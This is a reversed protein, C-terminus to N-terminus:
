MCYFVTVSGDKRYFVAHDVFTRIVDNKMEDPADSELFKIGSDVSEKWKRFMEPDIPADAETYRKLSTELLSIQSQLLKKNEAYEELTDIGAQYAQSARALKNKARAIDSRIKQVDEDNRVRSRPRLVTADFAGSEFDRKLQDIVLRNAKELSIYHSVRCKGKGYQHCQMGAGAASQTLTAGCNSCRLMGKLMFIRGHTPHAKYPYKRKNEDLIKQAAAFTEGDIIAAHTKETLITAESIREAHKGEVGGPTWHTTGIYAVNRLIYEINRNQWANGRATQLGKANLQAAIRRSPIGSLFDAFIQKVVPATEPDPVPKGQESRYGYPLSGLVGGRHAKETMGRLVEEALNISYYEDMAELLAEILISTKDEGLQESISIVDIGCQKRLMSKYVISDERNRAFRSFKWVLIVDFPRPTTKALGIMQQFAPRKTSRGSIGEDSFILDEPVLMKNRKAYELIAKKQSDPSYEVQDDTSVRIYAAAIKM